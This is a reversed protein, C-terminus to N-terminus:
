RWWWTGNRRRSPISSGPFASGTLPASPPPSTATPCPAASRSRRISSWWTEGALVKRVLAIKDRGLRTINAITRTKVKGGQRYSERILYAPPSSRNPVRAVYMGVM